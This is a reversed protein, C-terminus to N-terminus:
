LCSVKLAVIKDTVKDKAKYVVGYTGNGLPTNKEIKLYRDMKSINVSWHIYYTKNTIIVTVCVLTFRPVYLIKYINYFNWWCSFDFKPRM